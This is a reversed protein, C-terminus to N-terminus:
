RSEHAQRGVFSHGTDQEVIVARGRSRPVFELMRQQIISHGLGKSTRQPLGAM